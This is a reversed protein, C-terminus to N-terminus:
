SRGERGKPRQGRVSFHCLCFLLHEFLIFVSVENAQLRWSFLIVCTVVCSNVSVNCVGKFYQRRVKCCCGSGVRWVGTLVFAVPVYTYHWKDQLNARWVLLRLKMYMYMSESFYLITGYKYNVRFLVARLYAGGEFLHIILGKIQVVM